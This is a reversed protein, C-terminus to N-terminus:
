DFVAAIQDTDVGEKAVRLDHYSVAAYVAFFASLVSGLVWQIAITAKYQSAFFLTAPLVIGMGFVMMIFLMIILLAFIRWRHGKSLAMSRKFSGLGLREIAAVPILVWLAVFMYAFPVFMLIMGLFSLLASETSAALLGIILAGPVITGVAVLALLIFFALAIGLVPFILAIGKGFCEGFSAPAGRLDQVTGYTLAASVLYGLAIGAISLIFPEAGVQEFYETPDDGVPFDNTGWLFQYIYTPSLVVFSLFVFSFINRFFVSFTRSLVGGVRFPAGAMSHDTM